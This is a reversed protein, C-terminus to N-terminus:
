RLYKLFLRQVQLLERQQATQKEQMTASDREAVLTYDRQSQLQGLTQAMDSRTKYVEASSDQESRIM